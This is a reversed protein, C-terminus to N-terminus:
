FMTFLQTRAFPGSARIKVSIVAWLDGFPLGPLRKAAGPGGCADRPAERRASARSPSMRAFFPM